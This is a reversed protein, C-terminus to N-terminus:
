APLASGRAAMQGRTLRSMLPRVDGAMKWAGRFVAIAGSGMEEVRMAARMSEPTEPTALDVLLDLPAKAAPQKPQGQAAALRNLIMPGVTRAAAREALPVPWNPHHGVFLAVAEEWAQVKSVGREVLSRYRQEASRAALVDLDPAPAHTDHLHSM